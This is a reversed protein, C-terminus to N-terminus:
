VVAHPSIRPQIEILQKVLTYLLIRCCRIRLQRVRSTLVVARIHPFTAPARCPLGSMVRRYCRTRLPRLGRTSIAAHIRAPVTASARSPFDPMVRRRTALRFHIDQLGAVFAHRPVATLVAQLSIGAGQQLAVGILAVTASEETRKRAKDLLCLLTSRDGSDIPMQLVANVIQAALPDVRARSQFDQREEGVGGIVGEHDHAVRGHKRMAERQCEEHVSDM